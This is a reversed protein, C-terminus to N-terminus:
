KQREQVYRSICKQFPKTQSALSTKFVETLDKDTANKPQAQKLDASFSTEKSEYKSLRNHKNESEANKCAVQQM